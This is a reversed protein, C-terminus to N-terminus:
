AIATTWMQTTRNSHEYIRDLSIILAEVPDSELPMVASAGLQPAAWSRGGVGEHQVQMAAVARSSLLHRPADHPTAANADDLSQKLRAKESSATRRVHQLRQRREQLAGNVSSPQHRQQHPRAKICPPLDLFTFILVVYLVGIKAVLAM